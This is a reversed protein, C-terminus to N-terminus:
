RMKLSALAMVSVLISVIWFRVVVQQETWGLMHLHHHYPAVRFIRKGKTAKFYGVQLVVSGIEILFVTCILLVVIEQRVIVAIYGIIGGLALAGTDGLLSARLHATLGFFGLARVLWRVPL